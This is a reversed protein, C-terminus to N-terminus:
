WIPIISDVRKMHLLKRRSALQLWFLLSRSRQELEGNALKCLCESDAPDFILMLSGSFEFYNLQKYIINDEKNINAILKPPQLVNMSANVQNPWIDGPTDKTFICIPNPPWKKEKAHLGIIYQILRSDNIDTNKPLKGNKKKMENIGQEIEKITEYPSLMINVSLKSLYIQKLYEWFAHFFVTKGSNVPGTLGIIFYNSKLKPLNIRTEIDRSYYVWFPRNCEACTLKNLYDLLIVRLRNIFISIILKFPFIFDRTFIKKFVIMPKNNSFRSNQIIENYTFPNASFNNCHNYNCKFILENIKIEKCINDTFYLMSVNKTTKFLINAILSM